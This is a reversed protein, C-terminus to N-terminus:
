KFLNLMSKILYKSSLGYEDFIKLKDSSYERCFVDEFGLIKLRAKNEPYQALISAVASGLGGM